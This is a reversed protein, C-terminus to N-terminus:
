KNWVDMEGQLIQIGRDPRDETDETASDMHDRWKSLQQEVLKEANHLKALQKRIEVLKTAYFDIVTQRNLGQRTSRSQCDLFNSLEETSTGFSLYLQITKIWEVDSEDYERYGNELRAPKLLGQGEYYRLSRLSVGTKQSLESIRM